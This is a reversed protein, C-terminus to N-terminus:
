ITLILSQSSWCSWLLLDLGMLSCHCCSFLIWGSVSSYQVGKRSIIHRPLPSKMAYSVGTYCKKWKCKQISCWLKLCLTACYCLTCYFGNMLYFLEFHKISIMNIYTEFCFCLGPFGPHYKILTISLFSFCSLFAFPVNSKSKLSFVTEWM